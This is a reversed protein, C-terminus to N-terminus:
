ACWGWCSREAEDWTWCWWGPPYWCGGAHRRARWAALRTVSPPQDPASPLIHTAAVTLRADKAQRPPGQRPPGGRTKSLM